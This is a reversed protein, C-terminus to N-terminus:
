VAADAYLTSGSIKWRLGLAYAAAIDNYLRAYNEAHVGDAGCYVIAQPSPICTSASHSNATLINWGTIWPATGAAVKGKMRTFDTDTHLMGSHVFLFVQQAALLSLTTLFSLSKM